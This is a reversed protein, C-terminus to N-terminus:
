TKPKCAPFLEEWKPLIFGALIDAVEAASESPKPDVSGRYAPRKRRKIVMVAVIEDDEGGEIIVCRLGNDLVYGEIQELVDKIGSM